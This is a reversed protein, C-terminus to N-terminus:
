IIGIIRKFSVTQTGLDGGSYYPMTTITVMVTGAGDVLLEWRYFETQTAFASNSYKTLYKTGKDGKINATNDYEIALIAYDLLQQKATASLKISTVYKGNEDAFLQFHAPQLNKVKEYIDNVKEYIGSLSNGDEDNIAKDAKGVIITGNKIDDLTTDDEAIYLCDPIIEESEILEEIEGQTGLWLKVAEGSNYDINGGEMEFLKIYWEQLIDACEEVVADGNNLGDSVSVGIHRATNWAYVVEGGEVCAFQVVFQLVGVFQTANSSILWSCIVVKDNDPSIQLDTVEYVGKNEKRTQKDINIYHVTVRNCKSLDHGEITRPVEFTFRESNHDYQVLMTKTDSVNKVARTTGDIKFHADSDYVSHKHSM